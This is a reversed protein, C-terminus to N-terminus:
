DIIMLYICLLPVTSVMGVTIGTIAQYWTHCKFYVARSYMMMWTIWFLLVILPITILLSTDNIILGLLIWMVFFGITQCHGSPLGGQTIPKNTEIYSCHMRNPRESWDPKYKKFLKVLIFWIIGNFIIGIVIFWCFLNNQLAIALLASEFVLIIPCIRFFEYLYYLYM